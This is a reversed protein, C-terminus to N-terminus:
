HYNVTRLMHQELSTHDADVESLIWDFARPMFCIMAWSTVDVFQPDRWAADVVRLEALHVIWESATGKNM